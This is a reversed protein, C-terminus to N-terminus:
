NCCLIAPFDNSIGAYRNMSCAQDLSRLTKELEKDVMVKHGRILLIAQEIREDPILLEGKTM